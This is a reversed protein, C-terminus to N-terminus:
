LKADKRYGGRKWIEIKELQGNRNYFYMKGKFVKSNRCSGSFLLQKEDNYCEGKENMRNCISSDSYLAKYDKFIRWSNAETSESKSSSYIIEDKNIPGFCSSRSQRITDKVENCHEKHYHVSMTCVGTTDYLYMSEKCGNEFFYYSEGIEKGSQNFTSFTRMNGNRHYRILQGRYKGKRFEGEEKLEGTDYYKFYQGSPRNNIYTGKLKATKGDNYYKIWVGSKRDDIYNGEEIKGDEPFGAEPRDKGYIIWYGQRKGDADTQNLTDSQGFGVSCTLFATIFLIWRM